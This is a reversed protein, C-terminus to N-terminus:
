ESPGKKTKAKGEDIFGQLAQEILVLFERPNETISTDSMVTIRVSDCYSIFGVSIGGKGVPVYSSV